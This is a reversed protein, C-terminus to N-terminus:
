KRFPLYSYSIGLERDIMYCIVHFLWQFNRRFNYSKERRKNKGLSTTKTKKGFFSDISDNRSAFLIEGDSLSKELIAIVDEYAREEHVKQIFADVFKRLIDKASTEEGYRSEVLTSMLLSFNDARFTETVWSLSVPWVVELMDEIIWQHIAIGVTVTPDWSKEIFTNAKELTEHFDPYYNVDRLGYNWSILALWPPPIEKFPYLNWDYYYVDDTRYDEINGRFLTFTIVTWPFWGNTRIEDRNQNFVIYREPTDAGLLRHIDSENQIYEDLITSIKSLGRGIHAIEEARPHEINEAKAYIEWADSLSAKLYLIEERHDKMWQTPKEIGLFSLPHIDKAIPRYLSNQQDSAQILVSWAQADPLSSAITDAWRSLALGGDIAIKALEINEWPFIRFPMFLLNAREFNWRSKKIIGISETANTSNRLSLMDTYAHEVLSKTYFLVPLTLSVMLTLFIAIPRRKSRIFRSTDRFVRRAHLSVPLSRRYIDGYKRESVLPEWRVDLAGYPISLKPFLDITTGRKKGSPSPTLSRKYALASDGIDLTTFTTYRPLSLILPLSLDLAQSKQKKLTDLLPKTSRIAHLEAIPFYKSVDVISDRWKTLDFSIIGAHKKM